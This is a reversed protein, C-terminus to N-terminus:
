DEQSGNLFVERITFKKDKTYQSLSAAAKAIGAKKFVRAQRPSGTKIIQNTTDDIISWGVSIYNDM